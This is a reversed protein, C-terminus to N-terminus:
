LRALCLELYWGQGRYVEEWCLEVMEFPGHFCM